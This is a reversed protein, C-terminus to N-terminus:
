VVAGDDDDSPPGDKMRYILTGFGALIAAVALLATTGDVAGSLVPPVVLLLVGAGILLLALITVASLRPPPPPPPPVFHEEADLDLPAGVFDDVRRVLRPSGTVDESKPWPTAAPAVGDESLSAVIQAWAADEDVAADPVAPTAPLLVRAGREARADVFVRVAEPAEATVYAAIGAAALDGLLSDAARPSVDALLVYSEARLGNGRCGPARDDGQTEM